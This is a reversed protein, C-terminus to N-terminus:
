LMPRVVNFSFLLHYDLSIEARWFSGCNCTASIPLATKKWWLIGPSSKNLVASLILSFKRENRGRIFCKLAITDKRPVSVGCCSSIALVFTSTTLSRIVLSSSLIGEVHSRPHHLKILTCQEEVVVLVSHTSDGSCHTSQPFQLLLYFLHFSIWYKYRHCSIQLWM